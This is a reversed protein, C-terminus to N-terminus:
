FTLLSYHWAPRFFVPLINGQFPYLEYGLPLRSFSRRRPPPPLLAICVTHATPLVKFVKFVRIVKFVKSEQGGFRM